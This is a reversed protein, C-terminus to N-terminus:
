DCVGVVVRWENLMGVQFRISSKSCKTYREIIFPIDEDLIGSLVIMGRKKLRLMLEDAFELLTPKLINALILNYKYETSLLKTYFSIDPQSFNLRVNERANDIALTDIEVGDVKAGLMAAAISLIGSGSGFDLVTQGSLSLRGLERLCLQTSEHTGTGFGIGPTIRIVKEDSPKSLEKWSPVIHWFPAVSVGKFSEKWKKNWDEQKQELVESFHLLSFNQKLKELAKEASKNNLFYLKHFKPQSSINSQQDFEVCGEDVGQFGLSPLVNWVWSYFEEEVFDAKLFVKIYYLSSDM